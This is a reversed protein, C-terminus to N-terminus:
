RSAAPGVTTGALMDGIRQRRKGSLVMVILGLFNDEVVRLLSRIAIAGLSPARGDRTMVRLGMVQKGLSQAMTAECLFFYVVTVAAVCAYTSLDDFMAIVVASPLILLASDILRAILRKGDYQKLDGVPMRTPQTAPQPAGPPPLSVTSDMGVTM